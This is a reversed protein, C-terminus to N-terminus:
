ATSEDAFTLAGPYDQHVLTNLDRLFGIAELNERGGHPNPIWEGPKRSYDLYLMSAVADVRLGDLHFEELWYAASSLLFSRVENRAYNFVHTGWEQHLGLRPDEHEFLATGDFRALAWDDRPFHGPVWDLIVGLGAQHCADVFARFEDPTGYRSTPAFYGTAQYGWSEDLPHESVPLLELHTYGLDLAYPILHEALDRYTYFRGDPHRKWSGLHVEYANLPAHLWDRKARAAMWGDDKWVHRAPECVKAATGPRLEYRQGFPDFKVFVAGTGRARIEFKYLAGTRVGPIFLEWVGSAGRSTMPHARGDWANFEGVVSVREANPAWCAFRVGAIGGHTMPVAGLVRWARMLRGENFLYLDQEGLTPAVSWPSVVEEQKGMGRAAVLTLPLPPETPLVAEHLGPAVRTMPTLGTATRVSLSEAHPDVHRVVWTSASRHVGLVSHPDHLRGELLASLRPDTM